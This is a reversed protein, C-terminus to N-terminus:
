LYHGSCFGEIILRKREVGKEQLRLKKKKKKENQSNIGGACGGVEGSLHSSSFIVETQM